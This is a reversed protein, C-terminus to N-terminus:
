ATASDADANRENRLCFTKGRRRGTTTFGRLRHAPPTGGMFFIAKAAATERAQRAIRSGTTLRQLGDITVGADPEATASPQGRGGGVGGEAALACVVSVAAPQGKGGGIGGNLTAPSDVKTASPQGRGGGIGGKAM